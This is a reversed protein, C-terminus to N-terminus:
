VDGVGLHHLMIRVKIERAESEGFFGGQEYVEVVQLRRVVDADVQPHMTGPIARGGSKWSGVQDSTPAVGVVASKRRKPDMLLTDRIFRDVAMFIQTHRSDPKAITSHDVDAIPITQVDPVNPDASTRNVVIVTGSLPRTEAFAVTRINMAPANQRYWDKLDALHPSHQELELVTRTTRALGPLYKLATALASGSHPTALFAVGRTQTALAESDSFGLTAATRLVQKVVLGGLSHCVFVVPRNGIEHNRLVNLATTALDPIAMGPGQRAVKGRIGEAQWNSIEATYDLTWVAAERHDEALWHMWTGDVGEAQWTAFGDGSLGHVFVVDCSSANAQDSVRDLTTAM